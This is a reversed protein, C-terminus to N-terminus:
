NYLHDTHCHQPSLGAPTSRCGRQLRACRLLLCRQPMKFAPMAPVGGSEGRAFGGGPVASTAIQSGLPEEMAATNSPGAICPSIPRDPHSFCATRAPASAPAPTAARSRRAPLPPGPRSHVLRFPVQIPSLGAPSNQRAAPPARARRLTRPCTCPRGRPRWRDASSRIACRRPPPAPAPLTLKTPAFSLLPACSPRKTRCIPPQWEGSSQQPTILGVPPLKRGCAFAAWATQPKGGQLATLRGVFDTPNRARGLVSCLGARERCGQPRSPGDRRGHAGSSLGDAGCAAM